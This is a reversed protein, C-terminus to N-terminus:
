RIGTDYSVNVTVYHNAPVTVTQPAPPRPLSQNSAPPLGQVRYTGPALAVRYNGRSDTTQRAVEAGSQTQITIVAGPFPAENSEGPRSVPSIPGRTAQGQVGQSLPRAASSNSGGCGALALLCAAVFACRSYLTQKM